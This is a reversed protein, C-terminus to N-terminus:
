KYVHLVSAPTGPPKLRFKSQKSSPTNPTRPSFSGYHSYLDSDIDTTGLWNAFAKSGRPNSTSPKLMYKFIDDFKSGTLLLKNLKPHGDVISFDKHDNLKQILAAGRERQKDNLNDLLSAAMVDDIAPSPEKDEAVSATALNGADAAPPIVHGPLADAVPAAQAINGNVVPAAPVNNVNAVPAPPQAAIANAAPAVNDFPISRINDFRIQARNILKSKEDINMKDNSLLDEIESKLLTLTRIQPDYERLQQDKM